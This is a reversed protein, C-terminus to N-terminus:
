KDERPWLRQGRSLYEEPTQLRNIPLLPGTQPAVAMQPRSIAAIQLLNDGSRQQDSQAPTQVVEGNGQPQFFPSQANVTAQPPVAPALQLNPVGALHQWPVGAQEARTQPSNANWAHVPGAYQYAAPVDPANGHALRKAQAQAQLAEVYDKILQERKIPAQAVANNQFDSTM